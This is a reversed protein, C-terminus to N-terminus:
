FDLGPKFGFRRSNIKICESLCDLRLYRMLQALLIFRDIDASSAVGNALYGTKHNLNQMYKSFKDEVFPRQYSGDETPRFNEYNPHLLVPFSNLVANTRPQRTIMKKRQINTHSLWSGGSIPSSRIIKQIWSTIM